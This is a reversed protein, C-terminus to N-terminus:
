HKKFKEDRKFSISFLAGGKRVEVEKDKNIIVGFSGGLEPNHSNGQAFSGSLNHYVTSNQPDAIVKAMKEARSRIDGSSKLSAIVRKRNNANAM